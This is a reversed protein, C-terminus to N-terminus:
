DHRRLERMLLQHSREAVRDDNRRRLLTWAVDVILVSAILVVPLM